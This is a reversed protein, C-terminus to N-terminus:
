EHLGALRSGLRAILATEQSHRSEEWRDAVGFLRYMAHVGVWRLPEPEWRGSDHDNWPLRTLPTDRGAARDLLTRAALRTATVGHGAFGRVVGVRTRPDFFVGACWDRTVGIAGRWAHDVTLDVGPFFFRLRDRLTRVTRADVVGPGPTGSAYAYPTGRGGIAIRGDETRQAYVFTHAADGLCERGDWGIREWVADPLPATVIMSSNVPIVERRGLGPVDGEVQVSHAELCCLVTTARVDGRTTTVGGAGVRTVRTGELVRVGRREVVRALGRILKAPDVRATPRYHLGGLAPAVAVREAVRDADLLDLESARYGHALHAAHARELRRLAAPTTAIQLHGGQHQDADIGEEALVRLTDDITANMRRQFASVEAVGDLGRARAARAYVARNGPLLTSMWGGNRGSAGYGVHEAELVTITRDPDEVAAQYAAWLGTLGGGVVVLDQPEDPLPASGRDPVAACPGAPPASASTSPPRSPEAATAAPPGSARMWHSVEGNRYTTM